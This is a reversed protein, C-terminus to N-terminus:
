HHFYFSDVAEDLGNFLFQNIKGALTHCYRYVTDVIMTPHWQREALIDATKGMM